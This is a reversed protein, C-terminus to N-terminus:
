NLDISKATLQKFTEYFEPTLNKFDMKKEWENNIEEILPIISEGKPTLKLIYQRKDEKLKERTVYSNKELKNIAKTIAGKSLYLGDALDKQNLEDGTYIMVICLVQILSIGHKLLANNLYIKHNKHFVYLLDGLRSTDYFGKTKEFRM